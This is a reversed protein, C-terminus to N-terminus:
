FSNEKKWQRLAIRARKTGLNELASVVSEAIDDDELCEILQPVAAPDGILGLNEAALRQVIKNKDDLRELLAPVAQKTPQQRFAAVASVRVNADPHRTAELFLPVDREDRLDALLSIGRDLAEPQRNWQIHERITPGAAAGLARLASRCFAGVQEIPSSLGAHVLAALAQPDGSENLGYHASIGVQDNEDELAATFLPALERLTGARAGCKVLAGVAARRVERNAERAAVMLAPIASPDAADELAWGVRQRASSDPDRLREILVRIAEAGGIKGLAETAYGQVQASQDGLAEILAPVAPPGMRVLMWPKIEERGSRIGELLAPLARGDRREALQMAAGFRVQDVPHRLAEALLDIVAPHDMEKLTALAAARESEESSDLASAAQQVVPPADRPVRLTLPKEANRLKGLSEILSEWPRTSENTFDLHQITRLRPHLDAEEAGLLVPLVPVGSGLAFAWEYNVQWSRIAAPSLVVVLALAERIRKDIEGLERDKQSPLDYMAMTRALLDAFDADGGAYSLFIHRM